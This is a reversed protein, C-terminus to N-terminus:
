AKGLRALAWRAHESVVPDPHQSLHELRPILRGDGSNGMAVCLNRLWGQYKARQIPSYAFLLYFDEEALSALADLPPNFLSFQTEDTIGQGYDTTPNRGPSRDERFVRQRSVTMPQFEHTPATAVARVGLGEGQLSLPSSLEDRAKEGPSVGPAVKERGEPGSARKAESAREGQGGVRSLSQDGALLVPGAGASLQGRVVPLPRKNNWPCVDQCIDCGFINAGLAARHEEPIPGKLEITLYSICRSADM